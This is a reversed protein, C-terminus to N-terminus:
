AAGGGGIAGVGGDSGRTSQYVLTSREDQAQRLVIRQVPEHNSLSVVLTCIDMARPPGRASPVHGVFRDPDAHNAEAVPSRIV